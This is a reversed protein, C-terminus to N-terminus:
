TWLVTQMETYAHLAYIGCDRGIGSMKFGGFPADMNRQATNLGVTGAELRRAVQYGKNLDATFVYDNLGYPSDNAIAIGEEDDDFPIVVIVPGFFEERAAPNKNDTALLTPAV